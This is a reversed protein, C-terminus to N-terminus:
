DIEKSYFWDVNEVFANRFSSRFASKSCLLRLTFLPFLQLIIQLNDERCYIRARSYNGGFLILLNRPAFVCVCACVDRVSRPLFFSLSLSSFVYRLLSLLVRDSLDGRSLPNWSEHDLWTIALVHRRCPRPPSSFSASQIQVRSRTQGRDNRSWSSLPPRRRPSHRAFHPFHASFNDITIFRVSKAATVSEKVIIKPEFIPSNAAVNIRSTYTYSLIIWPIKILTSWDIALDSQM